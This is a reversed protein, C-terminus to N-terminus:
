RGRERRSPDSSDAFLQLEALIFRPLLLSGRLFGAKAVDAVRGDIIVSTDLLIRQGGDKDRRGARVERVATALDSRKVIGATAGALGLVIAAILPAYRGLEG